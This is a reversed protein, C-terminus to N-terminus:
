RPALDLAEALLKVVDDYVASFSDLSLPNHGWGVEVTFGPRRFMHIFWDKYGADSGTLKVARYGAAIALRHAWQESERPEEDRYNWYIEEGQSHLALVAHFDSFATWDALARAEPECLPTTGVYDRPAPGPVSRREREEDWGAPFQDNLDVGRANAKWGHFRFSGRNAAVILDYLPHSDELGDTVLEVGDPNVMPVVSLSVRRYLEEANKGGIANRSAYASAYQEVFRMLLLATMWENGHCAGNFHWRFPGEGIRLATLPKGLVSRGITEAYLFAYKRVLASVDRELEYPGYEAEGRVITDSRRPQRDPIVILDGPRLRDGERLTPNYAALSQFTIGFRM